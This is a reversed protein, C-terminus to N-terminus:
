IENSIGITTASLVVVVLVLCVICVTRVKFYEACPYSAKHFLEEKIKVSAELARLEQASVEGTGIKSVFVLKGIGRGAYKKSIRMPPCHLKKSLYSRLTSGNDCDITQGKEFLTILADAYEEEEKLWKGSRLKRNRFIPPVAMM